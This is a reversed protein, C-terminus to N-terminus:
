HEAISLKGVREFKLERVLVDYSESGSRAAITDEPVTADRKTIAPFLAKLDKDLKETLIENEEKVIQREVKRRKSEAIM